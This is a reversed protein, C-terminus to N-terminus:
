PTEKQMLRFYENQPYLTDDSHEIFKLWRVLAKQKFKNIVKKNLKNNSQYSIRIWEYFEKYYKWYILSYCGVYDAKRFTKKLCCILEEFTPSQKSCILIEQDGLCYSPDPDIAYYGDPINRSKGSISIFRHFKFM